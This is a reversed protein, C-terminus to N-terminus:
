GATLGWTGQWSGGPELTVVATDSRFAQPPCTMPEIAVAQRRREPEEVDDGTYVMLYPFSEDVWLSIRADGDPDFLTAVARGDTDRRLGAFAADLHAAGIPVTTRFDLQTGSM